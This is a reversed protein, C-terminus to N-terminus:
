PTQLTQRLVRIAEKVTIGTSNVAARNKTLNESVFLTLSPGDAQIESNTQCYAERVWDYIPIVHFHLSHGADHGFRCIHIHEPQFNVELAQVVASLMLGMEILAAHPLNFLDSATDKAGVMVYGPLTADCRHNVRWHETEYIVFEDPPVFVAM